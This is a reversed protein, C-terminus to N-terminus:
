APDEHGVVVRVKRKALLEGEEPPSVRSHVVGDFSVRIVGLDHGDVHPGRVGRSVPHQAQHELEVALAHDVAHRVDSVQVAAHLLDRLVAGVQLEDRVRVPHVVQARERGIDPERQGDLFQEANAHRVAALENADDAALQRPDAGMLEPQPRVSEIEARRGHEEVRELVALPVVVQDLVQAARPQRRGEGADAADLVVHRLVPQSAQLFEDIGHRLADVLVLRQQRSVRDPELPGLVHALDGGGLRDVVAHGTRGEARGAV